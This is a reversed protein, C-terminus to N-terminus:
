GIEEMEAILKQSCQINGNSNVIAEESSGDELVFAFTAVTNDENFSLTSWYGSLNYHVEDLMKNAVFYNLQTNSEM